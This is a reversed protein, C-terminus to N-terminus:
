EREQISKVLGLVNVDKWYTHESVLGANRMAVVITHKRADNPQYHEWLDRHDRLWQMKDDYSSLHAAKM